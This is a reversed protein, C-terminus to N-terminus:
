RLNEPQDNPNSNTCSLCCQNLSFSMNAQSADVEPVNKLTLQKEAWIQKYVDSEQKLNMCQKNLLDYKTEIFKFKSKLKNLFKTRSTLQDKRQLHQLEIDDLTHMLEDMECKYKNFRQEEENLQRSLKKFSNADRESKSSAQLSSTSNKLSSNQKQFSNEIKELSKLVQCAEYAEIITDSTNVLADRMYDVLKRMDQKFVRVSSKEKDNKHSGSTTQRHAKSSSAITEFDRQCEKSLESLETEFYIKQKM